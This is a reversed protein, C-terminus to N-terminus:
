PLNYTFLNSGSRCRMVISSAHDVLPRLNNAAGVRSHASHEPTRLLFAVEEPSQAATIAADSALLLAGAATVIVSVEAPSALCVTRAEIAQIFSNDTVLLMAAYSLDRCIDLDLEAPEPWAIVDEDERIAFRLISKSFLPSDDPSTPVAVACGAGIVPWAPQKEADLAIAIAAGVQHFPSLTEALVAQTRSSFLDVEASPIPLSKM